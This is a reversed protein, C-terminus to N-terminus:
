WKFKRRKREIPKDSEQQKEKERLAKQKYAHSTPDALIEDYQEKVNKLIPHHESDICEFGFSDDNDDRHIAYVQEGLRIPRNQEIAQDLKSTHLVENFEVKIPRALRILTELYTEEKATENQQLMHEFIVDGNPLIGVPRDTGTQSIRSSGTTELPESELPSSFEQERRRAPDIGFVLQPRSALSGMLAQQFPSQFGDEMSKLIANQFRSFYNKLGSEHARNEM